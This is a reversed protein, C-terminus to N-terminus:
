IWWIMHERGADVNRRASSRLSSSAVMGPRVVVNILVMQRAGSSGVLSVHLSVLGICGERTVHLGVNNSCMHLKIAHKGRLFDTSHLIHEAKCEGIGYHADHIGVDGAGERDAGEFTHLVHKNGVDVIKICDDDPCHWRAGVNGHYLCEGFDDGYQFGAAVMRCQVYHVAFTGSRNLFEDPGFCDVDLEEGRVVMSCISGLTGNDCELFVENGGKGGNIHKAGELEPIFKGQLNFKGKIHQM